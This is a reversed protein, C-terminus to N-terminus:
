DSWHNFCKRSVYGRWSGAIYLPHAGHIVEHTVGVGGNTLCMDKVAQHRDITPWLPLSLWVTGRYVYISRVIRHLTTLGNIHHRRNATSFLIPYRLHLCTHLNLAKSKESLLIKLKKSFSLSTSSLFTVLSRTAVLWFLESVCYDEFTVAQLPEQYLQTVIKGEIVGWVPSASWRRSNARQRSLVDSSHNNLASELQRKFSDIFPTTILYIPLRNWYM